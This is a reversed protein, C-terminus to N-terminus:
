FKDKYEMEFMKIMNSISDIDKFDNIYCDSSYKMFNYPYKIISDIYRSSLEGLGEEELFINKLKEYNILEEKRNLRLMLRIFDDEIMGFRIKTFTKIYVKDEEFAFGNMSARGIIIESDGVSRRILSIFEDDSIKNLSSEAMEIFKGCDINLEDRFLITRRLLLKYDERIKGIDSNLGLMYDRKKKARKHFEALIRISDEESYSVKKKKNIVFIGQKNLFRELLDERRM